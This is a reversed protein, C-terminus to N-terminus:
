SNFSPSIKVLSPGADIREPRPRARDEFRALEVALEDLLLWGEPTLRVRGDSESALGRAAWEAVAADAGPSLSSRDLGRHTRLDLWLAELRLDSGSVSESGEIGTEGRRVAERYVSWARHNWERRGNVFSHAGSGIGLYPRGSWYVQNHRSHRGPRGFNSVEYHDFGAATLAEHALLYEEAYRDEDALRERGEAVRRGLPAGAEATLGYLSVHEPGLQVARELDAAWDRRLHDPVGFILDLSMNSIAAGRALAFAEAPKEPGHLRGMWQLVGPDFSQIGFSLRNVGVGAWEAALAATFSEPNAEATWELLGDFDVLDRWRDRLRSFAGEGLLSPTGGGVYLTQLHLPTSWGYHELRRRLETTVADIWDEVPPERTADVAFDCYFCRRACFPVHLYLAQAAASSDSITM